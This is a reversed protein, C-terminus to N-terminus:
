DLNRCLLALNHHIMTFIRNIAQPTKLRSVVSQRQQPYTQKYDALVVPYLDANDQKCSHFLPNAAQPFIGTTKQILDRKHPNAWMKEALISPFSLAQEAYASANAINKAQKFNNM